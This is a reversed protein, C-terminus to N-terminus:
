SPQLLAKVRAHFELFNPMFKDLHADQVENRDIKAFGDATDNRAAHSWHSPNRNANGQRRRRVFEEFTKAQYHNIQIGNFVPEEMRGILPLHLPQFASDVSRGAKMDAHHVHMEAVAAPRALTKIHRNMYQEPHSCRRFSQLVSGIETGRLGSSGFLRWNLGVATVDRPIMALFHPLSSYGFPVVFEDIDIFLMWTSRRGRAVADNYAARQPSDHRESPWDVVIVPLHEALRRLIDRTEDETDNVYVVIQQAGISLHFAVWEAIFRAENKAIAVVTLSAAPFSDEPLPGEEEWPFPGAQHVVAGGGMASRPEALRRQVGEIEASIRQAMQAFGTHAYAWRAIISHHSSYVTEHVAVLNWANRYRNDRAVPVFGCSLLTEIVDLALCGGLQVPDDSVAVYVLGTRTSLAALGGRLVDQAAGEAEIWLALNRANGAAPARQAAEELTITPVSLTQMAVEGQPRPKLSGWAQLREEVPLYFPSDGAQAGVACNVFSIGQPIGGATVREYVEPAAEYAVARGGEKLNVFRKAQPAAHAGIEILCTTERNARALEFYLNVLAGCQHGAVQGPLGPTRMIAGTGLESFLQKWWFAASQKPTM